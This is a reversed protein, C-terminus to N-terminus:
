DHSQQDSAGPVITVITELSGISSSDVSVSGGGSAKASAEAVMYM